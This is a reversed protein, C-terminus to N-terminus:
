EESARQKRIAECSTAREPTIKLARMGNAATIDKAEAYSIGFVEAVAQAVYEVFAPENRRGRKPQPALYPSDTEIVIREIGITKLTERLPGADKYTVTGGVGLHFGMDVLARADELTGSFCHAIGGIESGRTAGLDAILDAYAERCHMAVPLGRERAAGLQWRFAGRQKAADFPKHYYDLGIEGWCVVLPSEALRGIADMAQESWTEIDCPHIGVAAFCGPHTAAIEVVAPCDEPDTGLNMISGVGAQQARAVAAGVEGAFKANQLHAHTDFLNAM